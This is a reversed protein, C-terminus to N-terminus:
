AARDQAPSRITSGPLVPSGRDPPRVMIGKLNREGSLVREANQATPTTM